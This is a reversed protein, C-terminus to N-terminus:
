SVKPPDFHLDLRAPAPPDPVPSSEGEELEPSSEEMEVSATDAPSGEEEPAEPSAEEPAERSAEEGEPATKLELAEPAAKEEPAEEKESVEPSVTGSRSEKGEGEQEYHEALRQM